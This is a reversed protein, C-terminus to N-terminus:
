FRFAMNTTLSYNRNMFEPFIQDMSHYIKGEFRIKINEKINYDINSSLGLTKFGNPSNTYIIVQKPDHYYEARLAIFTKNCVKYRTIIVPSFWTLNNNSITRESGIDFGAIIGFRKTPEYKLYFNHFHRFANLSDPKDYGLFNSYNFSLKGSPYYSFNAGFSPKNIYDPKSIKQWGNLVLASTYIKENDSTYSLRLATEYYPSNEALISRSLNWCESSIASEFGIHSPMIGADLWLNKNKSVKVGINAEYIFQAWNPESSLNYQAYNGFMIGLNARYTNEIYSANAMILNLNIENHRKHNYIFDPKEHNLPKSFDYSYYLEGFASFTIKKDTTDYQAYLAHNFILIYALIAIKM